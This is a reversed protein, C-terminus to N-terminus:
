KLILDTTKNNHRPRHTLPRRQADYFARSPPRQPRRQATIELPPSDEDDNRAAATTTTEELFRRLRAFKKSNGLRGPALIKDSSSSEEKEKPRRRATSRRQEKMLAISDAVAQARNIDQQKKEQPNLLRQAEDAQRRQEIALAAKKEEREVALRERDKTEELRKAEAESAIAEKLKKAKARAEENVAAEVNIMIQLDKLTEDEITFSGPEDFVFKYLEGRKLPPAEFGLSVCRLGYEQAGHEDKAVVFTAVSGFELRARTPTASFNSLLITVKRELPEEEPPELPSDKELAGRLRQALMSRPGTTALSRALLAAKLESAKLSDLNLLTAAVVTPTTSVVTPPASAVVASAVVTPKTSPKRSASVTPRTAAKSVSPPRQPRKAADAAREAAVLKLRQRELFPDEGLSSVSAESDEDDKKPPLAEAMM